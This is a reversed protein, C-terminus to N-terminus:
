SSYSTCSPPMHLDGRSYFSPLSGRGKTRVRMALGHRTLCPTEELGQVRQRSPSSCVIVGVWVCDSWKLGYDPISNWRVTSQEFGAIRDNSSKWFRNGCRPESVPASTGWIRHRSTVGDWVILCWWRVERWVVGWRVEGCRVEYGWRVGCRVECWGVEGYRVEGWRLDEDWTGEGCRVEGWRVEGWRVEHGWRVGWIMEGWGMEGWGVEGLLTNYM